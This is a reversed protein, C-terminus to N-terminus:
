LSSAKPTAVSSTVSMTLCTSSRSKPPWGSRRKTASAALRIKDMMMDIEDQACQGLFSDFLQAFRQRQSDRRKAEAPTLRGIPTEDLLLAIEAQTFQSFLRRERQRINQRAVDRKKKRNKSM